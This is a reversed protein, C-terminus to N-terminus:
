TLHFVFIFACFWFSSLNETHKNKGCANSILSFFFTFIKKRWQLHWNGVFLPPRGHKITKPKSFWNKHVVQLALLVLITMMMVSKEFIFGSVNLHYRERLQHHISNITFFVSRCSSSRKSIWKIPCFSMRDRSNHKLGVFPERLVTYVYPQIM